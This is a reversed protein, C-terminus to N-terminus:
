VVSWTELFMNPKMAYMPLARLYTFGCIRSFAALSISILVSVLIRVPSNRTQQTELERDM